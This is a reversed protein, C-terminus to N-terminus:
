RVDDIRYSITRSATPLSSRHRHGSTSQVPLDFCAFALRGAALGHAESVSQRHFRGQFAVVCVRQADTCTTALDGFLRPAAHRLTGMTLLQVGVLRGHSEGCTHGLALRSLVLRGVHRSRQPSVDVQRSWRFCCAALAAGTLRRWM